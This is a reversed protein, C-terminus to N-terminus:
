KYENKPDSKLTEEVLLQPKQSVILATSAKPKTPKAAVKKHDRQPQIKSKEIIPPTTVLPSEPKSTQRDIKEKKVIPGDIPSSITQKISPSKNSEDISISIQPTILGCHQTSETQSSYNVLKEIIPRFISEIKNDVVDNVISDVETSLIGRRFALFKFKLM